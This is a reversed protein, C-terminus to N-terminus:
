FNESRIIMRVQLIMMTHSMDMIRRMMRYTGKNKERLRLEPFSAFINGQDNELVSGKRKFQNYKQTTSMPSAITTTSNIAQVSINRQIWVSLFIVLDEERVRGGSLSIGVAIQLQEKRIM